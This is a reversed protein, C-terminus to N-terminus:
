ASSTATSPTRTSASTGSRTAVFIDYGGIAKDHSIRLLRLAIMGLFRASYPLGREDLMDLYLYTHFGSPASKHPWQQMMAVVVATTRRDIAFIIFPIQM